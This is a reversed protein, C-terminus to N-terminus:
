YYSAPYNALVLFFFLSLYAAYVQDGAGIADENRNIHVGHAIHDSQGGMEVM